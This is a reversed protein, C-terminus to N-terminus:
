KYILKYINKHFIIQKKDNGQNKKFSYSLIIKIISIKRSNEPTKM